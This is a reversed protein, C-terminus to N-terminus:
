PAHSHPLSVGCGGGAGALSGRGDRLSSWLIGAAGGCQMPSQEEVQCLERPSISGPACAQFASDSVQPRFPSPCMLSFHSGASPKSFRVSSQAAEGKLGVRRSQARGREVAGAGAGAGGPSRRWRPSPRRRDRERAKASLSWM